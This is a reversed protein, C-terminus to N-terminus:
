EEKVLPLKLIIKAGNGLTSQINFVDDREYFAKLRKIVNDLGIGTTHGIKNKSKEKVKVSENNMIRQITQEDMGKGNDEVIIEVTDYLRKASLRVEAGEEMDGVGHICANEILPQIILSPMSIDLADEEIMYEFKILDGFRTEMIYTYTYLNDIEEQLRVSKDLSRLNYRFLNSMKELFIGTREADEIMALQVGANLTNFLFHPNIQAQLAQIEANKLLNKMKLNQMKEDMFKAEMEAQYKLEDFYTKISAKMKNFAEAMVKVEDETEVSVNNVNFNGKSIEDASEALSVIPISMKDTFWFIIVVNLLFTVAMVVINSIQLFKLKGSLYFYRDTNEHFQNLNLQKIYYDIYGSIEKARKYRINCENTDRGRKAVIAADAEDLYESIINGIDKQMLVGSDYSLQGIMKDSQRRLNDSDRMYADLSDSNKTNVYSLLEKDINEINGSLDTLHVNNIFMEDFKQTIRRVNYITYFNTILMISILLLSYALMKKRITNLKFTGRLFLKM